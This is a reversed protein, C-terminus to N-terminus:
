RRLRRTENTGASAEGLDAAATSGVAGPGYPACRGSANVYCLASRQCCPVSMGDCEWAGLCESEDALAIGRSIVKHEFLANIVSTAMIKDGRCNPHGVNLSQFMDTQAPFSYNVFFTNPEDQLKSKVLANLANVRGLTEESLYVTDRIDPYRAMVLATVNPDAAHIARITRRLSAATVDASRPGDIEAGRYCTERPGEQMAEKGDNIWNALVVFSSQRVAGALDSVPIM